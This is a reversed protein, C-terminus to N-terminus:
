FGGGQAAAAKQAAATGVIGLAKLVGEEVEIRYRGGNTIGQAKIRVHDSDESGKLADKLMAQMPDDDNGGAALVKNLSIDMEALPTAAGLNAASADMAATVQPMVDPGLGFYVAQPAIGVVLDVMDGLEPRQQKVKEPVPLRLKHFNANGHTAANWEVEPADGENSALEGFKKLASEIKEPSEIQGAGIVYQNSEDAIGSMAMDFRGAIITEMLADFMEGAAEKIVARAEEKDDLEEESDLEDMIQKRMPEMQARVQAEQEARSEEPTEASIRVLMAANEKAFGAFNTTPNMNAAAELATKTGPLATMSADVVLRRQSEDIALGITVEDADEVLSKLEEVQAMAIKKRAEFQEDTEGEKPVLGQEVGSTLGGIAMQKYMPPVNQAMFRIGLDYETLLEQMMATPDAPPNDLMEASNAAFVWDGVQKVFLPRPSQPMTLETVGDGADAANVQFNKVLDLVGALDNTPLCVVQSLNMGNAEVVVGWPMEKDLGPIGQGQTSMNVMMEVMDAQGPRGLIGGLYNVDDLVSQYGSLAVVAITNGGTAAAQGPEAELVAPQAPLVAPTFCAVAAMLWAFRKSNTQPM